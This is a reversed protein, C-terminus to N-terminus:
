KAVGQGPGPAHPDSLNRGGGEGMPECPVEIIVQQVQGSVQVDLRDKFMGLHRAIQDHAATKGWLKFETVEVRRADPGTGERYRKVKISAIARRAHEPIESWPKMRATGDEAEELLNAIDSYAVLKIEQLLRAANVDVKSSIEATRRAIESKVAANQLLRRANTGATADSKCKYGADRYAKASNQPDLLYLDVFKAHKPPLPIADM